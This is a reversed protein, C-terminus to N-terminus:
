PKALSHQYNKQYMVKNRIVAFVRHIIKNSIANLVAMKSKGQAVKRDYYQRLEGKTALIARAALHLLTKLKKNAKQSVQTKGRVSTGSQKEFPAVGAHCAFKKPCNFRKFENTAVLIATATVPGIGPVSVMYDYLEKITPDAEILAKLQQEVKEIDKNLAAISAKSHRSLLKASDKDLFASSERLPMELQKKANILRDRLASLVALQDIVARPPQWLRVKDQFRFAYQAIRRADLRDTKGRTMGISNAIQAAHEIWIPAQLGQLVALVPNNYIGTHEMCFLSHRLELQGKKVLAQLFSELSKTDNDVTVVRIEQSGQYIAVEITAKSIDIGIFHQYAM